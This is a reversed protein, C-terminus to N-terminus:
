LMNYMYIYIYITCMEKNPCIYIYIYIYIHIHMYMNYHVNIPKRLPSVNIKKRPCWSITPWRRTRKRCPQQRSPEAEWLIRRTWGSRSSFASANGRTARCPIQTTELLPYARFARISYMRARRPPNEVIEDGSGSAAGALVGRATGFDIEAAQDSPVALSRVLIRSKLPNSEITIKITLPPIRMIDM